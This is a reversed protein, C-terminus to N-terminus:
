NKNLIRKFYKEIKEAMKQENCINKVFQYANEEIEKRKEYNLCVMEIKEKLAAVNHNRYIFATRGAEVYDLISPADSVIVCKKLAMQQLLRMQGFSFPVTELPLVCFEANYVQDIFDKIPLYPIQVVGKIDEFRAERGGILHLELDVKNRRYAEVVTDWDCKDRGACVIYPNKPKKKEPMVGFLDFDVGYRIFISKKAVWPFFREYYEKQSRMHHILGDLSKSAFQMLKLQFGSESASAFSGIDFVIHKAKTKFFRRWFCIVIASQMGHSVILDYQNLNPIAKLAQWVYFHLRNKEFNELRPFSTIDIVDVEPKKKFYRFFWYDEDRAKYDPPQKDMPNSNCYEIKWNVLMLIKMKLCVGKQEISELM